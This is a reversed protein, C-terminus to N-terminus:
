RKHRIAKWGGALLVAVLMGRIAWAGVQTARRSTEPANEGGTLFMVVALALGGVIGAIWLTRTSTTRHPNEGHTTATM